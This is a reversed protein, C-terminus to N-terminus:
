DLSDLSDSWCTSKYDLSQGNISQAVSMNPARIESNVTKVPAVKTKCIVISGVYGNNPASGNIYIVAAYGKKRADCFGSM